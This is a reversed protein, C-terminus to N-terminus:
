PHGYRALVLRRGRHSEVLPGGQELVQWAGGRFCDRANWNDESVLYLGPHPPTCPADAASQVVPIHRRLHFLLAIASEDDVDFFAMPGSHRALQQALHRFSAGEGRVVGGAAIGVTLGLALLGVFAYAALDMRRQHLWHVLLHGGGGLGLVYAAMVALHDHLYQRWWYAWETESAGFGGIGRSLALVAALGLATLVAIVRHTRRPTPRPTRGPQQLRETLRALQPVLWGALLIALAPRLVLLYARRKGPAISFFVFMVVIWVWLFRRTRAPLASEAGVTAPLAVIWPVGSAFLPGFYWWPPFSGLAGTMRSMNEEYIQLYVFAWGHVLTAALYWLAPVGVIAVVSSPAILLQWGPLPPVLLAAAGFVMVALALALPGKSLTALGLALSALVAIRRQGAGEWVRQALLLGATLFFCFTMDVRSNRAEILFQPTTMLILAAWLAVTVGAVRWCFLYVILVGATGLLASPLRADLLDVGSHRLKASMAGLWYFLPPKVPIHRENRLPLVWGYGNVMEQMMQGGCSESDDQWDTAGLQFLFMALALPIIVALHLLPRYGIQPPATGDHAVSAVSIDQAM